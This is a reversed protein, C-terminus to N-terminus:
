WHCTWEGGLPGPFHFNHGYWSMMLPLPKTRFLCCATVQVLSSKTWQHTVMDQGWINKVTYLLSHGLPLTPIITITRIRGTFVSIDPLGLQWLWLIWHISPENIVTTFHLTVPFIQVPLGKVRAKSFSFFLTQYSLALNCYSWYMLLPTVTTKCQAISIKM